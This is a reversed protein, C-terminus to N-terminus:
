HHYDSCDDALVLFDPHPVLNLVDKAFAWLVPQVIQPLPVLCGQHLITRAIKLTEPVEEPSLREQAIQVKYLHNKKLKRFFNYRAIVLEKGYYSIRLPNSAM